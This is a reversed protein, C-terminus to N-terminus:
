KVHFFKKLKKSSSEILRGISSTFRLFLLQCRQVMRAFTEVQNQALVAVMSIFSIAIGVLYVTFIVLINRTLKASTPKVSKENALANYAFTQNLLDNAWLLIGAEGVILAQRLHVYSPWTGLLKFTVMGKFYSEVGIDSVNYGHKFLTKVTNIADNYPLIFAVNNCQKLLEIVYKNQNQEFYSRRNASQTNVCADAFISFLQLPFNSKNKINCIESAFKCFRAYFGVESHEADSKFHRETYVKLAHSIDHKSANPYISKLEDILINLQQEFGQSGVIETRYRAYLTFNELFIQQFLKRPLLTRPLVMNYVNTNKYANTLVTGILMIVIGVIASFNHKLLRNSLPNGQELVVKVIFYGMNLSHQIRKTAFILSVFLAVITVWTYTDFAGLLEFFALNAYDHPGCSVFRLDSQPDLLFTDRQPPDLPYQFDNTLTLQFSASSVKWDEEIAYGGNGSFTKCFKFSGHFQIVEALNGIEVTLRMTYNGLHSSWLSMISMGLRDKKNLMEGKPKWLYECINPLIENFYPNERSFMVNVILLQNPQIQSVPTLLRLGNSDLLYVLGNKVFDVQMDSALLALVMKEVQHSDYMRQNTVALVHLGKTAERISEIKPLWLGPFKFM